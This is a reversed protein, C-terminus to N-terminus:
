LTTMEATSRHPNLRGDLELPMERDRAVLRDRVARQQEAGDRVAVGDDAAEAARGVGGRRERRHAREPGLHVVVAVLERHVADPQAPESDAVISQPLAPVSARSTTPSSANWSPVKVSVPSSDSEARGISRTASGSRRM